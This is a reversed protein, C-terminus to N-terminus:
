AGYVKKIVAQLLRARLINGHAQLNKPHKRYEGIALDYDKQSEAARAGLYDITEKWRDVDTRTRLIKVWNETAGFSNNDFHAQTLFVVVDRAVLKMHGQVSALRNKFDVSDRDTALIGLREQLVPDTALNEVDKETFMLAQFSEIASFKLNDEDNEFRGLFFRV